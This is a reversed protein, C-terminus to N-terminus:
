AVQRAQGSAQAEVAKSSDHQVGTFRGTAKERPRPARMGRRAKAQPLLNWAREAEGRRVVNSRGQVQPMPFLGQEAYRIFTRVCRGKERAFDTLNVWDSLSPYSAGASM